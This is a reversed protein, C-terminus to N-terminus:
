CAAPTFTTTVPASRWTGATAIVRYTYRHGPKATYDFWQFAQFPHERSSVDQGRALPPGKGAFVKMGRMWYKEDEDHDTRQIAFGLCGRRAAESLDMALMVSHTGAVARVTMGGAKAIARM